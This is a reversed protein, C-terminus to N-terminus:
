KGLVVGAPDVEERLIRVHEPTPEASTEANVSIIIDFESNEKVEDTRV